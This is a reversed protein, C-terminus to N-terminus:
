GNKTGPLSVRIGIMPVPFFYICKNRTDIFMGVWMDFWALILYIGFGLKIEM